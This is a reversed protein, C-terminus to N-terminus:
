QIKATFATLRQELEEETYPGIRTELLKGAGDLIVTHPLVGLRNGLRRSLQDVEGGGIWLPYAIGLDSAFRQVIPAEESSIGVFQVRRGAWRAHVRNFAPMEARCPACGTAWFNLILIRGQFQGLSQRQGALDTFSSAYFASPAIATPVPTAPRSGLWLASGALTALLGVGAFM